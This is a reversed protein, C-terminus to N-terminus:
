AGSVEANSAKGVGSAAIAFSDLEDIAGVQHPTIESGRVVECALALFRVLCMALSQSQGEGLQLHIGVVSVQMTIHGAHVGHEAFAVVGELKEVAREIEAM